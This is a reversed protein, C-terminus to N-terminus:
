KIPTLMPDVMAPYGMSYSGHIDVMFQIKLIKVNTVDITVDHPNDTYSMMDGEYINNEDGYISILGDNLANIEHPIMGEKFSLTKYKGDLNYEVYPMNGNYSLAAIGTAFRKNNITFYNFDKRFYVTHDHDEHINYPKLNTLNIKGEKTPAVGLDLVKQSSGVLKFNRNKWETILPIFSNVAVYDITNRKIFNTTGLYVGDRYVKGSYLTPVKQKLAKNESTLTSNTSKLKKIEATLKKNDNTLVSIKKELGKVTSKLHSVQKKLTSLTDGKAFTPTALGLTLFTVLTILSARKIKEM